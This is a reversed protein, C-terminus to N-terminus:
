WPGPFMNEVFPEFEESHAPSRLIESDFAPGYHTKLRRWSSLFLTSGHFIRWVTIWNHWDAPAILKVVSLQSAGLSPDCSICVNHCTLGIPSFNNALEGPAFFPPIAVPV